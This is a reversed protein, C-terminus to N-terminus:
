GGSRDARRLHFLAADWSRFPRAGLEVPEFEHLPALAAVDGRDAELDDRYAYNLIVLDGGPALVRAFEAMSRRVLDGGAAVVYPFADAVLVLDAGGTPAVRLDHAPGVEFRAAALGANRSRAIAIMRPSVDLGLYAAGRECLPAAFRGFGCGVELVRRGPGVLQRAELLDVVEQTNEGLAAPDGFSYLAVSAEPSIAAARDFMAAFRAVAEQADGTAPAHDVAALIGRVTDFAAPHAAELDALARLRDGGGAAVEAVRRVEDRDAALMLIRSLGISPSMAGTAVRDLVARLEPRLTAPDPSGTM